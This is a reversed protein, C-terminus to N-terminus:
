GPCWHWDRTIHCIQCSSAYPPGPMGINSLGHRGSPLVPLCALSSRSPSSAGCRALPWSAAMHAGMHLLIVRVLRATSRSRARGSGKWRIEMVRYISKGEAGMAVGRAGCLSKEAQERRTLRCGAKVTDEHDDSSAIGWEM